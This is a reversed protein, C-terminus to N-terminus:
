TVSVKFGDMNFGVYRLFLSTSVKALVEEM